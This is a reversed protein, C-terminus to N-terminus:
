YVVLMWVSCKWYKIPLLAPVCWKHLNVLFSDALEVGRLLMERYEPCIAASGAYAADVHLWVGYDQCVLGVGEVDEVFCSSTTGVTVCAFIPVLGKAIDSEMAVRLQQGTLIYDPGSTPIIRLCDELGAVKAAKQMSAHTQDSAYLTFKSMLLCKHTSKDKLRMQNIARERATVIAVLIGESATGQLVGQNLFIPPLGLMVALWDLVVSELETCAPSSEWSFGIM